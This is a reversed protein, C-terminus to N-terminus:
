EKNVEDFIKSVREAEKWKRKRINEEFEYLENDTKTLKDNFEKLSLISHQNFLPKLNEILVHNFVEKDWEECISCIRGFLDTINWEIYGKHLITHNLWGERYDDYNDWVCLEVFWRHSSESFLTKHPISGTIIKLNSFYQKGETKGKVKNFYQLERKGKTFTTKIMRELLLLVTNVNFKSIAFLPNDEFEKDTYHGYKIDIEVKNM